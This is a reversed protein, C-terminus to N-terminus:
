TFSSFEFWQKIVVTVIIYALDAFVYRAQLPVRGDRILSLVLEGLGADDVWGERELVALYRGAAAAFLRQDDSRTSRALERIGVCADAYM